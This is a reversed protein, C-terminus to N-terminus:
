TMKFVSHLIKKIAGYHDRSTNCIKIVIATICTGNNVAPSSCTSWKCPDKHAELQASHMDTHIHTPRSRCHADTLDGESLCPPQGTVMKHHSCHQRRWSEVAMNSTKPDRRQQCFPSGTKSFGELKQRAQLTNHLFNHKKQKRM